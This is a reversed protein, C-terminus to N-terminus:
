WMILEVMRMVVDNLISFFDTMVKGEQGLEGLLLGFGLCFVIIGMVNTGEKMVFKKEYEVVPVVDDTFNASINGTM